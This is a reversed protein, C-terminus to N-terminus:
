LFVHNKVEMLLLYHHVGGIGHIHHHDQFGKGNKGNGLNLVFNSILVSSFTIFSLIFNNKKLMLFMCLLSPSSSSHSLLPTTYSLRRFDTCGLPPISCSLCSM